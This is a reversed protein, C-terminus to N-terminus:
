LRPAAFIAARDDLVRAFAVVGAPVTVDTKLPIYDANLFLEPDGRRLRLGAATFMLKIRGDKWSDLLASTYAARAEGCLALGKDIDTLANVRHAFDVPRRNDPDVLSLDWLETGQYFDPIGPSGMKLTLQALSNIMGLRAIRRAFPGFAGL